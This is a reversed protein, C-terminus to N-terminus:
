LIANKLFYAMKWLRCLPVQLQEIKLIEISWFFKMWSRFSKSFRSKRPLVGEGQYFYTTIPSKKPGGQIHYQMGITRSKHKPLYLFLRIVDGQSYFYIPNYASQGIKTNHCKYLCGFLFIHSQMRITENNHKPLYFFLRIVIAPHILFGITWKRAIELYFSNINCESQRM